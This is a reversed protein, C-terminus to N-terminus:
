LDQSLMQLMWITFYLQENLLQKKLTKLAHHIHNEVTSVSLQLQAAIERNSLGQLRSMTFVKKQMFPLGDVVEAIVKETSSLNIKEQTSNDYHQQYQTFYAQYAHARLRRKTKNYIHNKAIQMIYASFSLESNLRHRTEWIKVFVEQVVEKSDSPSRTLHLCFNYLKAEYQHFLFDFSDVNGEKLQQVHFSLNRNYQSDIQM